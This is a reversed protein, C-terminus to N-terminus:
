ANPDAFNELSSWRLGQAIKTGQFVNGRNTTHKHLGFVHHRSFPFSDMLAAYTISVVIFAVTKLDTQVHVVSFNSHFIGHM